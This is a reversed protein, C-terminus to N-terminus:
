GLPYFRLKFRTNAAAIDQQGDGNFDGVAVSYPNSGVAIETSGSFGGQGDGLRISVSNSGTNAAAIDQQGDGNFDGVAVSYPNSGVAIETSGSFGRQGDGLRISVSNSGTNAAAIDQHGDGNFDGVAVSYPLGGVVIDTNGSFGGQGDGLRISVTNSDRNATVIDQNGDGNFDGVAVSRPSSGVAVNTTGSFGGLGDGLRISVSNSSGNATAIDQWGDGNFDGVAVSSPKSGVAVEATAPAYFQGQSCLTNGVTLTFTKTFGFGADVTVAYTGAPHANTITVAGTSQDVTLLGKFDTTTYVTVSAGGTPAADPSVTANGGATAISPDSYNGLTPAISTAQVNFTYSGEDCDDNTITVTATKTGLSTTIFNVSFNVESGAAITTPLTIGSLTFLDMDAGSIGISNITLPETGTNQVTYTKTSPTNLVVTGFDTDDATDPTNDGSTISLGNGQLNIEGSGGLLISVSNSGRNAAAIDQKGDGNFDGVAVSYLNSGVTVDTTGSFGGQGDGLRISVSNSVSNAAAIDQKGDGNFDGVAVSNPNSGVAINITGNFDGLGDGLRISVSSSDFNTAAIDQKGDGNFDGVAVSYPKLGAAIETTGFFGGRGDGLRISVTNSGINATAIDQAGDGNFDGVAVSLPSVGVVIETTGFFDGLGDGLRISVNSSGLGVNATAIDPAGDGNFDGVAVSIPSSGVAVDTTGIFGGTGDGLRISVSNSGSNAAAIDEKGDSNFDGIAVSRPASGVAVNTTGSFGGQGDGLRISVSGSSGNAAAIDQNGDGNFDGVAVSYPQSGVAVEAKAPAYFQGQSCLTNGVTLTFTQIIGFGADVTVAYTGAPHANTITVVGTSQDVTVLGKFDTTTYATISAGGTPVADPSVTATGGATAISPDSYNGLTPVITAQVNFTYSGEDCDDNTITVTATKTGLSTTIFNVSFNVESGAAITTPLTIGSLTFLGMDAGSIGISNITLPGTGSNQITYTRNTNFGNGFDTHDATAISTNGNPIMVGNGTLNIESADEVGLRISVSSSNFNAAAIDQHGDGNFDSVAVSYPNSGVAIETSGSFGGQGNGLRISITSSGSNATGIDQNGDGNFDGVAVSFPTSGVAIETSGSFGGQGDGLRISVSNSGANVAAIDQWGDGNFDGVAVSTPSSGVAVNTAGSFSGQGNGFRISVSNSLYNATAIDQWGDGNFDGVAVTAPGSGVTVNTTGSFGGQGDGLRISVSNSNYNAVAIDQNGDGNFDGVAVSLPILGVAVNTTGSFGGLGDGLRISISNSNVNAAAIDQKGDGNFDGVAVSRPNSGVAVNTTGSFGGQGDGLRISVSNSGANVAAIDQWGDGNFDGVAVSYPNAGVAVEPTAPAYFQGQSCPNNGVTLTFTKTFGFGADVTVAYTGAPHANTIALIGTSQDVTLLGKFDTTTYATVSAGGTPAADPLVTANGGATAISPDSYNGLSYNPTWQAYLTVNTVGMTYAAQDVYLTGTGDAVTNWGFFGYNSLTFTNARLAATVGEAIGQNAMAGIGGNAVFNIQPVANEYWAIKKDFRSASLVDLDGDGDLDATSVSRAGYAATTITQQVGFSGSGNNEYWAIKGNNTSFFSASLVDLDGDGDLDATSVGYAGIAATTVIQQDGFSGSGDNAYWAIKNDFESVSLVDLDGDGDLDANSVSVAGNAATTIIQQDGFSGSGDNAYWAIKNGNSSASLVDLDGDGDLDATSVSRAGIEVTTIIQQAGFSGSGNNEYWAIKNDFRSASLVDLDGDGDLDATSVSQANNVATTIIQQAGFTGSGNNAYWAIKNDVESASLVDLDGDGDLDATSVSAAGNAATTIIQQAGFNGSGDNAYWAIKSDDRSASLVDLDGDGDIDSASVTWAGNAATTITNQGNPFTGPSAAAVAATFSYTYPVLAGGDSKRVGTTLTTTIVEGPFFAASPDIVVTTETVTPNVFSLPLGQHGSIKINTATVSAADVNDDFVLTINADNAVVIANATPTTSLLKLVFSWQAYLSINANGITYAAHDAYYTGTGGIETNWGVFTFGDRTFRNATLAAATGEEIEQNAMTGVGGNANFTLAYSPNANEYWAIKDDGFSASLVDLDGDGDLDATSVSYAGNAVTTIIQQAGFSGSGDNAYWAIKNDFGSASLVDLDGDGDLDATSVSRAGNAATTIIQPAGFSGSGNNEYWAIKKDFLSTSLVDLDGDGDIDATSVSYTYNALATITQQAGFSGSGDNAYWAIKNDNSSASLVDLDGDGDLDATSVSYAGNAATTIIQQDGFSGSGDNAYWAIKDDNSSASLVDLDGDGDLDATSVSIAGDATTTIIQPAGFNGSGDNAYWAIKDDTSSASLVDLDGDGDLDATSVSRAGNAATTIIQQAGFSGSGDNAYWAIKNDFESASLVDLDGDGDLDASRVSHAGDAATTITNQGNPFTGPSAAAVAATFRYTYPIALLVGADSSVNKTLTTTIVEGPFFATTPNIVVTAGTVTPGAFSFPLGQHGSIKINTATVSAADVNDDFVLAINADNAVVIANTTPTTALVSLKLFWQAYLTVNASGMTYAGQDAYYTGTGDAVTNWGLFGYNALIFTNARLAATAGEEIEQNAMTGVGGNANFIIGVGWQAYLPVNASGMTYAAQDAYFTGTGDAATNWGVFTFGDRTFTNVTLAAAIGEEIEQNAMTGVGGNANFTLAYSPNVNEYWAIKDDTRSASLVDLDGDGDLDATSVSYAGNAATTILQQAGFSGSGDNAYWAIKNDYALASLVDLDGDGDLDATSVSVAGYAATTIIQQVGFTGSGDNAYWAIKNDFRSASLVDLDGDGDLDATSVSQANNVATTIIQQAGFTGSGNNAYWAIKNDVESASLVDLDGDGDLDATSVSVAGDAATTIIQQAGFSGSGNNEYWAIESASASLVDLDGDGDLDATSVSRAGVAATTIIQQAGFSGSGNNEYWAIKDDTSSASLVDLDGDGDLDATSVSIAGDAATTIIQQAGFTGSGDNAYWAIKKDGFSASLVDLDGDGDLDATSVSIAGDAATTITNQGNPFTGPSAAAVSATFRYTYPIALLVGADSSVNKTLTTTIVEGPFFAVYCSSTVVAAGTVTPSAFSLPLGQHGSIKINTATVSAADVNDDFVLAINADNAVGRANATPTTSLLKLVFSWQAYLTDRFFGMTYKAQDAYFTGTGDARTNWGLFGYGSRTFKNARLVTTPWGSSGDNNLFVGQPDMTGEGGNADFIIQLGWQAYLTVNASGMTYAAQDAYFTGTGDAATNWGLFTRNPLLFLSFDLAATVGEEIKQPDMTRELCCVSSPNGNFTITYIPVVNEYWGIKRFSSALVDLDGDGDLDATSVSYAGNAVTTILQQAGFSGSGDNAYWAITDGNGLASLVDLDGDGDMDATSVSYAGSVATSIIQQAGFGGFSNNAHWAIKNDNISTFLVDLDGDGDLDATSVSIAGNTDTTITRQVGFNGSGNNAYWTIKNDLGSASLVDLDGDGDLDGTIVSSPGNSATTIIQQSGFQLSSLLGKGNNMYWAIKNDDASASLVDLDGDGDLDATSVSINGKVDNSIIQVPDFSGGGRNAYWGIRNDIISAFLVDLRGDGNLDALSISSVYLNTATEIIQQAGFSGSGDNAYWAIKRGFDDGSLVDLDGDNDLDGTIVIASGSVATTITIEGKPFTGRGLSAAAVAATFPTVLPVGANSSVNKTLTTTTTVVGTSHDVTLLGKFDTTTYATVSADGTPAADPYVTANGGATAISPDSYNGLTSVQAWSSQSFLLMVLFFVIRGVKVRATPNKGSVHFVPFLSYTPQSSIM